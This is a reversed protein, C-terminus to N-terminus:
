GFNKEVQQQLIDEAGPQCCHTLPTSEGSIRVELFFGEGRLVDPMQNFNGLNKSVRIEM